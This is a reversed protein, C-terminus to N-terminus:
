AFSSAAISETSSGNEQGRVPPSSVLVPVKVPKKAEFDVKTGDKPTFKVETGRKFTKHADCAPSPARAVREVNVPRSIGGLIAAGTNGRDIM